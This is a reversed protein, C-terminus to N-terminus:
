KYKGSCERFADLEWEESYDSISLDTRLWVQQNICSNIKDECYTQDPQFSCFFMILSALM